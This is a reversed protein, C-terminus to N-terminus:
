AAREAGTPWIVAVEVGRIRAVAVADATSGQKTSPRGDWVAFIQDVCAIMAENAQAYVALSSASAIYRVSSAQGVLADFLPLHEASVRTDRYDPAPLLVELRGGADLVTQAFVSDAGEALCSAGVLDAPDFEALAAKLAARVLEITAPTLNMHGTIGVRV